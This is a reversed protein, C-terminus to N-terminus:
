DNSETIPMTLLSVTDTESTTTNPLVDLPLATVSGPWDPSGGPEMPPEEKGPEQEEDPVREWELTMVRPNFDGFVPVKADALKMALWAAGMDGFATDARFGTMMDVLPTGIQREFQMLTRAPLRTWVSEDYIWWRDGYTAVDDPDTFRFRMAKVLNIM